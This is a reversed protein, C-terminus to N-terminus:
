DCGISQKNGGVKLVQRESRVSDYVRFFPCVVLPVRVAISGDRWSIQWIFM